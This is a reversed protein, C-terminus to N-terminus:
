VIGKLQETLKAKIATVRKIRSAFHHHNVEQNKRAQQKTYVALSHDCAIELLCIDDLSLEVNM